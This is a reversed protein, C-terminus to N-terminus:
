RNLFAGLNVHQRFLEIARAVKWDTDTNIKVEIRSILVVTDYTELTTSLVPIHNELIYPKAFTAAEHFRGSRGDGTVIIGSLPSERLGLEESKQTVREIAEEFRSQSVVLLIGESQDFQDIEILSGAMVGQVKNLIREEHLLCRAHTTQLVTSVLPYLLTKDFPIYGLVPVDLAALRPTLISEIEDLKEPKVKNIIVGHVPVGEQRFLSLNLSIQDLTNGIGGEVVLVASCGLLRAVQANSLDVVSGVGVHGTGEYIVVDHHAELHRAAVLIDERFNYKWPNVLYDKTVGAGLIVPSHIRPDLAFGLHKAFLVSDKDAVAGDVTLHKQGIPKCYGVDCGREKLNAVLGLTSTTKGQHQGTAAIFYNPM